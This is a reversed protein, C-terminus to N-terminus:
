LPTGKGFVDASYLGSIFNGEVGACGAELMGWIRDWVDGHRQQPSPVCCLGVGFAADGAGGTASRRPIGAPAPATHPNWPQVCLRVPLLSFPVGASQRSSGDCKYSSRGCSGGQGASALQATAGTLPSVQCRRAREAARQGSREAAGPEAVHTSGRGPVPVRPSRPASLTGSTSSEPCVLESPFPGLYSQPSISADGGRPDTSSIPSPISRRLLPAPPPQGSTEHPPPSLGRWGTSLPRSLARGPLVSPLHLPSAGGGMQPLAIPAGGASPPQPLGRCEEPSPAM